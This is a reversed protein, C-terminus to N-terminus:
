AALLQGLWLTAALVSVSLALVRPSHLEDVEPAHHREGAPALTIVEQTHERSWEGPLGFAAEAERDLRPDLERHLWESFRTLTSELYTVTTHLRNTAAVGRRPSRLGRLVIFARNVAM